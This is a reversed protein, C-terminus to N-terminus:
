ICLQPQCVWCVKLGSSMESKLTYLQTLEKELKEKAIKLEENIEIRLEKMFESRVTDAQDKMESGDTSGRVVQCSLVAMSVLVILKFHM